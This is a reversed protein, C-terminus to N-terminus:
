LEAAIGRARGSPLFEPPMANLPAGDLFRRLVRACQELLRESASDFANARESEVDLTGIVSDGSPDLVPVIIEARTSGLATLYDADTSVEGVNVTKKGAIARSTLGKSVPFAPYAPAGPGSWALNSVLGREIDVDYIGVSRYAGEDRIAEAILAARAERSLNERVIGQLKDTLKSNSM